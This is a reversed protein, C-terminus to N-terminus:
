SIEKERKRAVSALCKADRNRVLAKYRRMHTSVPRALRHERTNSTM